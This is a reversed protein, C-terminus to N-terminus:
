PHRYNPAPLHSSHYLNGNVEYISISGDPNLPPDPEGDDIHVVVDDEELQIHHKTMSSQERQWEGDVFRSLHWKHSAWGTPQYEIRVDSM